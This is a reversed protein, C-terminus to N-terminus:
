RRNYQNRRKCKQNRSTM